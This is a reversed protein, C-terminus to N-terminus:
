SLTFYGKVLHIAITKCGVTHFEALRSLFPTWLIVNSITLVSIWFWAWCHLFLSCRLLHAIYTSTVSVFSVTLSLTRKFLIYISIFHFLQLTNSCVRCLGSDKQGLLSVWFPFFIAYYFQFKLPHHYLLSLSFQISFPFKRRNIQM